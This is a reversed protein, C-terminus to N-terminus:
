VSAEAGGGRWRPRAGEGLQRRWRWQGRGRCGEPGTPEWSGGGGGRGEGGAGRLVQGGKLQCWRWRQRRGRIREPGSGGEASM